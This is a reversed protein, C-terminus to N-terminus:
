KFKKILRLMLPALEEMNPACLAYDFYKLMQEQAADEDYRGNTYVGIAKLGYRNWMKPDASGDTICADTYIFCLDARKLLDQTNKLSRAIGESGHGAHLRAIVDKPLPTPCVTYSCGTLVLQFEIHSSKCLENLIYILYRAGNIPGGNMSGSCDVMLYVVVKAGKAKEKRLFFDDKRNLFRRIDCRMSLSTTPVIQEGITLARKFAPIVSHCWAVMNSDLKYTRAM